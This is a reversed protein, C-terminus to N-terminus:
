SCDTYVWESTLHCCESRFTCGWHVQLWSTKTKPFLCQWCFVATIGTILDLKSKCYELLSSCCQTRWKPLQLQSNLSSVACYRKAICWSGSRWVGQCVAWLAWCMTSMGASTGQGDEPSQSGENLSQPSYNWGAQKWTQIQPQFEDGQLQKGWNLPTSLRLCRYAKYDIEGRKGKVSLVPHSATGSWLLM